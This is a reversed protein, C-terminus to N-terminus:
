FEELACSVVATDTGTSTQMNLDAWFQTGPTLGTVIGGDVVPMNEGAEKFTTIAIGLLTGPSGTANASPPTGTGYRISYSDNSNAGSTGVYGFFNVRVRGSYVPTLKCSNGFGAMELTTGVSFSSPSAQLTASTQFSPDAGSGGSILPQGATGTGTNNQASSGENIPLTHAAPSAVGSGGNAPSVPTVLAITCTTTCPGGTLGTGTAVNTVTGTGATTNCGFTHTSTSYTLAGTCNNIALAGVSSLGWYGLVTDSSGSPLQALTAQGGLAAFNLTDYTGDGRFFTTNNNPWAPLAGSLSATALNILSTIQATSLQSPTGGAISGLVTNAGLTPLQALTAQGGVAAFNLTDYTGDGRFFTTTNNPWAPLAGSLSATALNILSTIQAQSLAIPTGGAISGLITDAGISPLQALSAQGGVAAFNLTDYTGDGRFFTTTNNPWAPLAGPLSATALNILATLQASSLAQPAGGAISGVVTNATLNLFNIPGAGAGFPIAGSPWSIVGSGGRKVPQAGSGAFSGQAHAPWALALALPAALLARHLLGTLKM